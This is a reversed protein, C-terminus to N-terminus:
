GESATDFEVKLASFRQDLQNHLLKGAAAQAESRYQYAVKGIVWSRTCSPLEDDAAGLEELSNAQKFV